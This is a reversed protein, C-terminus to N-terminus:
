CGKLDYTPGDERKGRVSQDMTWNIRQENLKERLDPYPDEPLRRSRGAPPFSALTQRTRTEATSNPTSM